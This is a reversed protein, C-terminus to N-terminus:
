ARGEQGSVVARVSVLNGRLAASIHEDLPKLHRPFVRGAARDLLWDALVRHCERRHAASLPARRIAASYGWIYEAVLRPTRHNARRPDLIACRERWSQNYARDDHDRRFYMWEPTQHFPGHLLIEGLIVRDAGYYSDHPACKRLVATRIVGYEDCARLVGDNDIYARRRKGDEVSEFVGSSGFMYNRFREAPNPSDTTIPYELAQTVNGAGDIAATWSHALVVDPREDLAEICSGLLDRAYLDDAAAWKFFEGRAEDAVFNHNPALGINHRQRIYRIRADQMAYARCIDATADTSANDSIILEFNEYSQGLLADIAAALYREGNYVPLGISLRPVANM